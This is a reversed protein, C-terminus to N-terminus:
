MGGLKGRVRRLPATELKLKNNLLDIPGKPFLGKKPSLPDDMHM